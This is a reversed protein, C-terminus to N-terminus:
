IWVKINILCHHLHSPSLPRESTFDFHIWICLASVPPAHLVSCTFMVFLQVHLLVALALHRCHQLNVAIVPSRATTNQIPFCFEIASIMFDGEGKIKLQRFWSLCFSSARFLCNKIASPYPVAKDLLIASKSITLFYIRQSSVLRELRSFFTCVSPYRHSQSHHFWDPSIGVAGSSFSYQLM